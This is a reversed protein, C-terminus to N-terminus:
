AYLLNDRNSWVHEATAYRAPKDGDAAVYAHEIVTSSGDVTIREILWTAANIDALEPAAYGVYTVGGGAADVRQTLPLPMDVTALAGNDQADFVYVSAPHYEDAKPNGLNRVAPIRRGTIQSM